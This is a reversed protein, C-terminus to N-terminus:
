SLSTQSRPKVRSRTASRCKKAWLKKRPKKRLAEIALEVLHEQAKRDSIGQSELAMTAQVMRAIEQAQLEIHREVFEDAAEVRLEPTAGLVQAIAFVNDLHSSPRKETLMRHVTARSLGSLNALANIPMKLARRQMDLTELWETVTGHMGIGM